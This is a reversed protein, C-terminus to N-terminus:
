LSVGSLRNRMAAAAIERVMPVLDEPKGLRAAVDWDGRPAVLGHGLLAVGVVVGRERILRVMADVALEDHHGWFGDTLVVVIRNALDPESGTLPHRAHNCAQPMDVLHPTDSSRLLSWLAVLLAWPQIWGGSWLNSAVM